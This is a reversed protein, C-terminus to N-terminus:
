KNKAKDVHLNESGERVEAATHFHFGPMSGSCILASEMYKLSKAYFFLLLLKM